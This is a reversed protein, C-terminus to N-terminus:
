LNRKQDRRPIPTQVPHTPFYKSPSIRVTFNDKESSTTHLVRKSQKKEPANSSIETSVLIKCVTSIEMLNKLCKHSLIIFNKTETRGTRNYNYLVIHISYYYYIHLRLQM